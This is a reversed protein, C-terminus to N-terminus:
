IKTLEFIGCGYNCNFNTTISENTLEMNEFLVGMDDVYSFSNVIFLKNLIRLLYELSFVKHANFEIRQKGIPVSFYFKGECRLIQHINKIAKLHGMIDIPDGYRGLGFHEIAHLSSISDCYENMEYQIQMLNAQKFVINKVTQEQPRIDLVEVERFVALHAVFGDIRSGIDLHKIPNNEHVKRAILLDQHFYHGNMTGSSEFREDLIAFPRGFEFDSNTEMQKKLRRFDAIYFPLGRFFNIFKLPDLGLLRLGRYIRKLRKKM